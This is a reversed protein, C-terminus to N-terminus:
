PNGEFMRRVSDPAPEEPAPQGVEAELTGQWAIVRKDPDPDFYELGIENPVEFRDSTPITFSAKGKPPVRLLGEPGKDDEFYYSGPGSGATREGRMSIRSPTRMVWAEVDSANRFTLVTGAETNEMTLTLQARQYGAPFKAKLAAQRQEVPLDRVQDWAQM